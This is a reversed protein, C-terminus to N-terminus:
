IISNQSLIMGPYNLSGDKILNKM